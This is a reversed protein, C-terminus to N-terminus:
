KKEAHICEAKKDTYKEWRAVIVDCYIPDLEMLRAKRGTKECAILTTGSGGFLDLVIDDRRSSNEIAKVILDVPKQNPHLSKDMKQGSDDKRGAFSNFSPFELVNPHNKQGHFEPKGKALYLIPEYKWTYHGFNMAQVDKLWILTNRYDWGADLACTLFELVNIEAYCVYAAVNDAANTFCNRYVKALFGRFDKQNDGLISRGFSDEYNVNYPPDTFILNVQEGKLFAKLLQEDTSDGCYLRHNGLAWTDGIKTTAVTPAEPIEDDVADTVLQQGQYDILDKLEDYDFGTLEIPFEGTDIDIIVDKLKALDWDGHIRNLALNLAKERSPSLDVVVVQTHGIGLSKLVMYRQHGGVIHGTQRNWIIPEVLSFETISNKLREMQVDSIQRPNYPAPNLESLPKKELVLDTNLDANM